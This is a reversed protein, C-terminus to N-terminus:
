TDPERQMESHQGVIGQMYVFEWAVTEGQAVRAAWSCLPTRPHLVQSGCVWTRVETAGM